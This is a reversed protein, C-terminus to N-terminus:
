SSASPPPPIPMWHTVRKTVKQTSRMSTILYWEKRHLGPYKENMPDKQYFGVFIYGDIPTYGLVRQGDEPLRDQVSIWETM